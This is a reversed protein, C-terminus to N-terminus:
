WDGCTTCNFSTGCKPRPCHYTGFADAYIPYFACAPCRQPPCVVTYTYVASAGRGKKTLNRVPNVIKRIARKKAAPRKAKAMM